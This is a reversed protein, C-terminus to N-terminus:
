VEASSPSSPDADRVPLVKGRPFVRYGNYLLSPPGWPRDPCTRFIEGWRSEIGPGDLGYATAIGVVSNIWYKMDDLHKACWTNKMLLVMLHDEQCCLAHVFKTCANHQPINKVRKYWCDLLHFSTSSYLHISNSRSTKHIIRSSRSTIKSKLSASSLLIALFRLRGKVFNTFQRESYAGHIEDYETTILLM